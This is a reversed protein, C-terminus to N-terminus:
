SSPEEPSADSGEASDEMELPADEAKHAQRRTQREERKQAARAIRKQEKQRKLFSPRRSGAM